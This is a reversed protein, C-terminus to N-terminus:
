VYLPISSIGQSQKEEGGRRGEKERERKREIRKKKEKARLSM